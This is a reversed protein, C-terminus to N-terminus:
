KWVDVRTGGVLQMAKVRHISASEVVVVVLKGRVVVLDFEHIDFQLVNQASHSAYRLLYEISLDDCPLCAVLRLNPRMFSVFLNSRNHTWCSELAQSDRSTMIFPANLITRTCAKQHTLHNIFPFSATSFGTSQIRFV